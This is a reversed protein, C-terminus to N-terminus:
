IIRTKSIYNTTEKQKHEGVNTTQLRSQIAQFENPTTFLRPYFDNVPVSGVKSADFSDYVNNSVIPYLNIYVNSKYIFENSTFAKVPKEQLQTENTLLTENQYQPFLKVPQAQTYLVM